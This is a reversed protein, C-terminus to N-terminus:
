STPWWESLHGKTIMVWREEDKTLINNFYKALKIYMQVNVMTEDINTPMLKQQNQLSVCFSIFNMDSEYIM